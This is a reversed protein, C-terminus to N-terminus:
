GALTGTLINRVTDPSIEPFQLTPSTWGAPENRQDLKMRTQTGMPEITGDPGVYELKGDITQTGGEIKRLAAQLEPASGSGSSQDLQDILASPSQQESAKVDGMGQAPKPDFADFPNENKTAATKEDFRDFPNEKPATAVPAQDFQDFINPM